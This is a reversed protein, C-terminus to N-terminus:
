ASDRHKRWSLYDESPIRPFPPNADALVYAWAPVMRGDNLRVNVVERRYEYPLPDDPGLGEYDDLIRLVDAANAAKLKYLEGSVRQQTDTARAMGPYNGLDFLRGSVVGDGVFVSGRALVRHMDHRSDERLTGYVFLHKPDRSRPM